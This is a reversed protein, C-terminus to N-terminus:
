SSYSPCYIQGGQVGSAAMVLICAILLAQVKAMWAPAM